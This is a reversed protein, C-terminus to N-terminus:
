QKRAPNNFDLIDPTLEMLIRVREGSASVDATKLLTLLVGLTASLLM